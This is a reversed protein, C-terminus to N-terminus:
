NVSKNIHHNVDIKFIILIYKATQCVSPANCIKIEIFSSYMKIQRIARTMM